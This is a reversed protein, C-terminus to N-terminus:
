ETVSKCFQHLLSGLPEFRCNVGSTDAPWLIHGFLHDNVLFYVVSKRQKAESCNVKFSYCSWEPM